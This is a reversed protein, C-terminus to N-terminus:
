RPLLSSVSGSEYDLATCESLVTQECMAILQADTPVAIGEDRLWHYADAVLGYDWGVRRVTADFNHDEQAEIADLVLNVVKTPDHAIHPQVRIADAVVQHALTRRRDREIDTM